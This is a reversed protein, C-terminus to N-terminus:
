CINRYCMLFTFSASSNDTKIIPLYHLGAKKKKLSITCEHHLLSMSVLGHILTVSKKAATGVTKVSSFGIESMHIARLWSKTLTYYAAGKKLFSETPVSGNTTYQKQRYTRNLWKQM